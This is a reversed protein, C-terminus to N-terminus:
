MCCQRWSDDETDQITIDDSTQIQKKVKKKKKKELLLRCVLHEPTEHARLHTYSVTRVCGVVAEALVNDSAPPELPLRMESGESLFSHYRAPAEWCGYRGRRCNALPTKSSTNVPLLLM